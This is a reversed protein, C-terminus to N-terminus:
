SSITLDINTSCEDFKCWSSLKVYDVSTKHYNTDKVQMERKLSWSVFHCYHAGTITGMAIINLEPTYQIEPQIVWTVTNAIIYTLQPSM